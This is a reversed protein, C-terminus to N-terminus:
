PAECVFPTDVDCSRDDWQGPDRNDSGSVSLVACDEGDNDDNPEGDAWEQYAGNVPEGGDDAGDGEWFQFGAPSVANAVWVWAEEDGADSAGIQVLLEDDEDLVGLGAIAQVLAANEEPTELWTLNMQVAACRQLAVAREVASECFMYGRGGLAFGRCQEACTGPPDV